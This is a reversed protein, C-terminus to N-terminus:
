DLGDGPKKPAPPKEILEDTSVSFKRYNSYSATCRIEESGTSARCHERM